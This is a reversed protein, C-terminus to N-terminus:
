IQEHIEGSWCFDCYACKKCITKQKIMPVDTMSIIKKIEFIMEDIYNKDYQSLFVEEKKREKPYELIGSVGDIGANELIMIYYKLQWLHSKHLKSSKKIEHIIKNKSDFFDIKISEIQIEKYRESRQSYTNEHILKGEYVRDSTHEMQIGNASLWLKRICVFYYHIQTGTPNM